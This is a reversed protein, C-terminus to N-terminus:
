QWRPHKGRNFVGLPRREKQNLAFYPTFAAEQAISRVIGQVPQALGSIHLTLSDGIALNARQQEPIYLRGYAQEGQLLTGLLAGPAVREGVRYPLADVQGDSPATISLEALRQRQLEVAAAAAAVRARGQALQESRSGAKLLDLTQQAANVQAEARAQETTLSDLDSQSLMNAQRLSRGRAAQAAANHARATAEQVQAAAAAIAQVRTGQTLEELAASAEHLQATALNLQAQARQTDQQILLTGAKVWQGEQVPIATIVENASATLRVLDYETSGFAIEETNNQCGAILVLLLLWARPM